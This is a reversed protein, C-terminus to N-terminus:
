DTLLKCVLRDAKEKTEDECLLLFYVEACKKLQRKLFAKRTMTADKYEEEMAAYFPM